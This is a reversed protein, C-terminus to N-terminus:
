IDLFQLNDVFTRFSVDSGCFFFYGLLNNNERKQM